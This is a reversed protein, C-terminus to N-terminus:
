LCTNLLEGHDVKWCGTSILRVSRLKVPIPKTDLFNSDDQINDQYDNRFAKRVTAESCDLREGIEVYGVGDALLLRAHARKERTIM